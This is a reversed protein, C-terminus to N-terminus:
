VIDAFTRETNRFYILGSILVVAMISIGMAYTGIPTQSVQAAPGFLAWRFGEVVATMPNLGLLFRFREPILTAGYIVPTVYMWVQVLFPVLYNIDRYRVNLASLWLGFALATLTALLVFVPLLIITPLLPMGYLIMLVILVLFGFGLDVLGSIIASIPIILRPFYVKTILNASLVLSTSSRTLAGAFYFWPLLAAFSFIPYPVEGSPVKLLGGFIGSFVFLTIIPQLLVWTVGLATQKYRVKVDRWVLFFLLEQYQWIDRLRLSALGHTPQIIVAPVEGHVYGQWTSSSHERVDNMM